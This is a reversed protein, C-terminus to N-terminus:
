SRMHTTHGKRHVYLTNTTVSASFFCRFLYRGSGVLKYYLLRPFHYEEPPQHKRRESINGGFMM